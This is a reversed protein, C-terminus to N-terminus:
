GRSTRGRPAAMTALSVLRGARRGRLPRRPGADPALGFTPKTGRRRVDARCELAVVDCGSRREALGSGRVLPERGRRLPRGDSPRPLFPQDALGRLAAWPPAVGRLSGPRSGGRRPHVGGEANGAPRASSSGHHDWGGTAARRAACRPPYPSRDQSPLMSRRRRQVAGQRCARERKLPSPWHRSSARLAPMPQGLGFHVVGAVM